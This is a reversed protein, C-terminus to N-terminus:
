TRFPVMADAVVTEGTGSSGLIGLIVPTISFSDANRQALLLNSGVVAGIDFIWGPVPFAWQATSDGARHRANSGRRLM